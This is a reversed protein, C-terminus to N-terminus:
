ATRRLVFGHRLLIRALNCTLVPSIAGSLGLIRRFLPNEKDQFVSIGNCKIYQYLEQLYESDRQRDYIRSTDKIAQMYCKEMVGGACDPLLTSIENHIKILQLWGKRYENIRDARRHTASEKQQVYLYEVDDLYVVRKSRKLLEYVYTYDEAYKLDVPFSIQKALETRILKLCPYGSLHRRYAFDKVANERNFVIKKNSKAINDIQFKKYSKPDYKEGVKVFSCHSWDADYEKILRYLLEIYEPYIYDDADIFALYKGSAKSLGYNRAGAAGENERTYIKFREDAETMRHLLALTNDTSGDNVIIIELERYTQVRLMSVMTDLYKEGNYIPIIVSILDQM